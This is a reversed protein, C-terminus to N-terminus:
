SLWRLRSLVLVRLRALLGSCCSLRLAWRSGSAGANVILHLGQRLLQVKGGVLLGLYLGSQFVLVRLGHVHHLIVRHRAVVLDLFDVGDTSPVM